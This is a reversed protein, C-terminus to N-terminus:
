SENCLTILEQYSEIIHKTSFLTDILEKNKNKEMSTLPISNFIKYDDELSFVNFCHRKFYKFTPNKKSLYIRAGLYLLTIINGMAQQRYHFFVATPCNKLLEIYDKKELFAEILEAKEKFYIKSKLKVEEKLKENKGYNVVILLKDFSNTKDKFFTLVDLYNSELSLSNGILINKKSTESTKLADFNKGLYQNISLFPCYLYEMKNIYLKSFYIYDEEIYSIFFDIKNLIRLFYVNKSNSFPLHFGNFVKKLFQKAVFIPDNRLLFNLTENSLTSLGVKPQSYIDYGWPFWGIKIQTKIELISEYFVHNLSHLFLLKPSYLDFYHVLSEKKFNFYIVNKKKLYEIPRKEIFIFYYSRSGTTEFNRIIDFTIKEPILFHFIISM